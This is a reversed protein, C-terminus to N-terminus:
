PVGLQWLGSLMDIAYLSGGSLMVGWVYTSGAGGPRVKAIERGALSGTLTGSVDLAVVGGNYYAAYLRQNQEDMWFNHTGAGSLSYTAVEVPASLDSVDVVHIDGSSSSGITGPGEQGVFLYRREGTVPNHFWWGNHAEGGVTKITGLRVPHGPTGGRGGGGIDYIYVGENWVFAFCIGDRVFTDHIGYNAPVPITDALAITGAAATSLDFIMLAPPPNRAGFAYLKGNLVALSGTHLGAGVGYFAVQTPKSPDALSYVYLGGASNGEATAVLLSGDPSVELDSVTTVNALRVSDVLTPAGGADLHFVKIEGGVGATRQVWNWTGTYAYGNAVWLDSSYREPSNGGGAAVTFAGTATAHAYATDGRLTTVRLRQGGAGPGLTWTAATSGNAGTVTTEPQITGGGLVVKWRVTDGAVGATGSSDLVM